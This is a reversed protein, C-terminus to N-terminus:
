TGTPKGTKLVPPPDSQPGHHTQGGDVGAKKIMNIWRLLSFCMDLTWHRGKNTLYLCPM